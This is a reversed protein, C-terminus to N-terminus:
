DATWTIGRAKLGSLYQDLESLTSGSTAAQFSWSIGNAECTALNSVVDTGQYASTETMFLPFAAHVKDLDTVQYYHFAVINPPSNTYTLGMKPVTTLANADLEAFSWLAIPTNPAAARMATYVDKLDQIATAGYDAPFWGVPENVMEYIVHTRDKYRPAVVNWFDLLGQKNYSGPTVSNMLAIYM